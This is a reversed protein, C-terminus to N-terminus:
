DCKFVIFALQTGAPEPIPSYYVHLQGIRAQGAIHQCEDVVVLAPEIQDPAAIKFRTDRRM